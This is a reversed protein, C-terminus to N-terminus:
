IALPYIPSNRTFENNKDSPSAGGSTWGVNFPLNTLGFAGGM